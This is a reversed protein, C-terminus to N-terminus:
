SANGEARAEALFTSTPHLCLSPSLPSPETPDRSCLMNQRHGKDAEGVGSKMLLVQVQESLPSWGSVMTALPATGPAWGFQQIQWTNHSIFLDGM